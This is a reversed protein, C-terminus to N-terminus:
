AGWLQVYFATLREAEEPEITRHNILNQVILMVIHSLFQSAALAYDMPRVQGKASLASLYAALAAFPQKTMNDLTERHEATLLNGERFWIRFYHQDAEIHETLGTILHLLVSQLPLDAQFIEDLFASIRKMRGEQAEQLVTHLIELKGGPFYHYTLAEAMGIAKNLERMSTAHYGKDAFLREAVALIQEKREAAQVERSTMKNANPKAAM